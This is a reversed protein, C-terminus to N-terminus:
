KPYQKFSNLSMKWSIWTNRWKLMVEQPRHFLLSRHQLMESIVISSLGIAGKPLAQSMNMNLGHQLASWFKKRDKLGTQAYVTIFVQGAMTQSTTKEKDIEEFSFLYQEIKNTVQQETQMEDAGPYFAMVMAVPLDIKPMEARPMNVLSYVGLLLLLATVFITIQKYKMAAEIFNPKRKM